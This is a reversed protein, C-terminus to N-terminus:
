FVIFVKVSIQKFLRLFTPAAVWVHWHFNILASSWDVAFFLFFTNNLFFRSRLWNFVLILYFYIWFLASDVFNGVPKFTYKVHTSVRGTAAAAVWIVIFLAPIIQISPYSVQLRLHVILVWCSLGLGLWLQGTKKFIHINIPSYHSLLLLFPPAASLLFRFFFLKWICFAHAWSFDFSTLNM